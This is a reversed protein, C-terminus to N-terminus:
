RLPPPQSVASRGLPVRPPPFLSLSFLGELSRSGLLQRKEGEWFARQGHNGLQLETCLHDFGQPVATGVQVESRPFPHRGQVLGDSTPVVSGQPHTEGPGLQPAGLTSWNSREAQVATGLSGALGEKFPVAKSTAEAPPGPKLCCSKCRELRGRKTACQTPVFPSATPLFTEICSPHCTLKIFQHLLYIILYM